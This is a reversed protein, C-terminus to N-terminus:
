KPTPFWEGVPFRVLAATYLYLSSVKKSVISRIKRGFKVTFINRGFIIKLFASKQSFPRIIQLAM